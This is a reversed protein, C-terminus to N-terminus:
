GCKAEIREMFKEYGHTGERHRSQIWESWEECIEKTERVIQEKTWDPFVLKIWALGFSIHGSEDAWDYDCDQAGDFDNADSLTKRLNMKHRPGNQELGHLLLLLRDM